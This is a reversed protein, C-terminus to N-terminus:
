SRHSSRKEVKRHDAAPFLDMLLLRQGMFRWTASMHCKWRHIRFLPISKRRQCNHFRHWFSSGSLSMRWTTLDIQSGYVAKMLRDLELPGPDDSPGIMFDTIVYISSWIQDAPVNEVTADRLALTVLLPVKSPEINADPKGALQFAVRGLWTMGQFYHELLPDGAYHGVPRYAGYDDTLGPILASEHKGDMAAIQALQASIANETASDLNLSSDFLKRAVALYNQALILDSQLNPATNEAAYVAMQDSVAAMLKSMVPSLAEKEVAALLDDFTVHLRPLRCRHNFLVSGLRKRSQIASIVSNCTM